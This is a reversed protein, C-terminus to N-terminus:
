VNESDKRPQPYEGGNEDWDALATLIEGFRRAVVAPMYGAPSAFGDRDVFLCSCRHAFFRDLPHRRDTFWKLEYRSGEHVIVEAHVDEVGGCTVNCAEQQERAQEYEAKTTM